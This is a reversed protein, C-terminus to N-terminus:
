PKLLSKGKEASKTGEYKKVFAEVRKQFARAQPPSLRVSRELSQLKLLERGAELEEKFRPSSTVAKTRDQLDKQLDTGKFSIEMLDLNEM